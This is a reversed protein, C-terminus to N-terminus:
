SVLAFYGLVGFIVVALVAIGAIIGAAFPHAEWWHIARPFRERLQADSVPEEIIEARLGTADILAAMDNGSWVSGGLRALREGAQGILILSPTIPQSSVVLSRAFVITGINSLPIVRTAGFMTTKTLETGAVAYSSNRFFLGVIILSVALTGVIIIAVALPNDRNNALNILILPVGVGASALISRKYVASSPKITTV